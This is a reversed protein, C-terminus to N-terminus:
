LFATPTKVHLLFENKQQKVDLQLSLEIENHYESLPLHDDVVEKGAFSLRQQDVPIGERDFIM